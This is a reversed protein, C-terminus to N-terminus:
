SSRTKGESTPVGGVAVVEELAVELRKGGFGTERFADGEVGQAVAESGEPQLEVLGGLDKLLDEAVGAYLGGQVDVGVDQGVDRGRRHAAESAAEGVRFYGRLTLRPPLDVVTPKM